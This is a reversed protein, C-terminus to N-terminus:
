PLRTGKQEAGAYFVELGVWNSPLVLGSGGSPWEVLGGGTLLPFALDPAAHWLLLSRDTLGFSQPLSQMSKGLVREEGPDASSPSPPEIEIRNKSRSSIQHLEKELSRMAGHRSPPHGTGARRHMGYHWSTRSCRWIGAPPLIRAQLELQLVEGRSSSILVKQILQAPLPNMSRVMCSTNSSPTSLAFVSGTQSTVKEIPDNFSSYLM